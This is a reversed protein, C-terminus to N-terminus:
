ICYFILKFRLAYNPLRTALLDLVHATRLHPWALEAFFQGFQLVSPSHHNKCFFITHQPPVPCGGPPPARVFTPWPIFASGPMETMMQLM